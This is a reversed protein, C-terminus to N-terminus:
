PADPQLIQREIERMGIRIKGPTVRDKATIARIEAVWLEFVVNDGQTDIQVEVHDNRREHQGVAQQILQVDPHRDRDYGGFQPAAANGLHDGEPVPAARGRGRRM